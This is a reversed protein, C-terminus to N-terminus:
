HAWAPLVGDWVRMCVKVEGGERKPGMITDGAKAQNDDYWVKAHTMADMLGKHFNDKDRAGATPPFFVCDLRVEGRILRGALGQKELAAIALQRYERGRKSILMAPIRQKGKYYWGKRWYGNVSPPFPLTFIAIM